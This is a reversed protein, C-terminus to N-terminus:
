HNDLNSKQLLYDMKDNGPLKLLLARMQEPSTIKGSDLDKYLKDILTRFDKNDHYLQRSYDYGSGDPASRALNDLVEKLHPAIPPYEGVANREVYWARYENLFGEVPQDDNGRNQIHNVEHALTKITEGLNEPVDPHDVNMLIQAKDRPAYGYTGSNGDHLVILEVKGSTLLNLTNRTITYSPHQQTYISIKSLMDLADAKDKDAVNKFSATNVYKQMDGLVRAQEAPTLKKFGANREIKLLSALVTRQAATSAKNFNESHFLGVLHDTADVNGRNSTLQEKISQQVKADLKKFEPTLELNQEKAASSIAKLQAIEKHYRALAEHYKADGVKPSLGKFDARKPPVSNKIANDALAVRRMNYAEIRSNYIGKQDEPPLNHPIGKHDPKHLAHIQKLAAEPTPTHAAPRHAMEAEFCANLSTRNFLGLAQLDGFKTAAGDNTVTEQQPIPPTVPPTLGLIKQLFNPEVRNNLDRKAGLPDIENAM